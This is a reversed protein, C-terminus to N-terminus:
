HLMKIKYIKKWKKRYNIAEAGFACPHRQRLRARGSHHHGDLSRGGRLRRRRRLPARALLALGRTSSRRAGAFRQAQTPERRTLFVGDGLGVAVEGGRCGRGRGRGRFRRRRLCFSLFSSSSSSLSLSPACARLRYRSPPRPSYRPSNRPASVAFCPFLSPSSSSSTWSCSPVACAARVRVCVGCM